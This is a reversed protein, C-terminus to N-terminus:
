NTNTLTSTDLSDAKKYLLRSYRYNVGFFFKFNKESRCCNVLTELQKIKLERGCAKLNVQLRYRMFYDECIDIM